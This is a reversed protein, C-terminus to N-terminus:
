RSSVRAAGAISAPRSDLPLTVVFRAGPADTAEVRISGGHLQVIERTVFLGLGLGSLHHQVHARYFRDFM